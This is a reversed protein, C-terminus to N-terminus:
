IRYLQKATIYSSTVSMGHENKYIRYSIDGRILISDRNTQITELLPFLTQDYVFIRNYNLNNPNRNGLKPDRFCFGYLFTIMLLYEFKLQIQQLLKWQNMWESPM